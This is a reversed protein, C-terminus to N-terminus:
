ENGGWIDLIEKKLKETRIEIKSEDWVKDGDEFPKVIDDKTISLDAYAKIGKRRGDGNMKKEFDCNRLATNLSSSLLTMNGIWYVKNDRDKKAEEDTMKLGDANYKQPVNQWHEKWMKPMIHELSYTYKLEKIDYKSDKHRRYLEIWFLILTAVKNSISQLGKLIEHEGIENLKSELTKEDQIFQKCLKNYNKVQELKAITNRVVFKELKLITNVQSDSDKKNKLVYLIFPDFTSIELIKIIHFLRARPDQFSLSVTNDFFLFQEKYIKAYEIIKEIFNQLEEESNIKDIKTKYVKSLDTLAHKDPDYFGNIVGICHLLIELNDRKLRGTLRETEWYQTTEEDILFTKEWTKKYLEIVVAKNGLVEIAKKFLANKIIEATTLRVGATNLTDFITQEDDEKDLDIIVLLKNDPDLIKNLIRKKNNDGLQKLKTVFYKYCQLIKHSKENISELSINQSDDIVKKYAESDVQSHEIRIEYSASAYDNKYRLLAMIDGESNKADPFTDYLAKLLISLTTLRQQGDIVELQKPEGSQTSLQKLIIAGLFNANKNSLLETILDEWNDVSWVYTRQFFPIKIKGEMSLFKFGKAEAKM